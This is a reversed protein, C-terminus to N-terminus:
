KSKANTEPTAPVRWLPMRYSREGGLIANTISQAAESTMLLSRDDEDFCVAERQRMRWSLEIKKPTRAFVETWTEGEARCYEFGRQYNVIVLRRGDVSLCMGTALAIEPAAIRKATVVEGTGAIQKEGSLAPLPMEFVECRGSMVKTAFLLKNEVPDYTVAECNRPGSEFRVDMKYDCAVKGATPAPERVFYLTVPQDFEMNNGCDVLILWPERDREFAVMEEWDRNAAGEITVVGHIKGARDFAVVAPAGGSDNHTWLLQSDGACRVLGSSECVDPSDVECILESTGYDSGMALKPALGGGGRSRLEAATPLPGIAHQAAALGLFLIFSASIARIPM